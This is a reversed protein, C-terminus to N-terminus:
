ANILLIVNTKCGVQISNTRIPNLDLWSKTTETESILNWETNEEFIWIIFGIMEWLNQNLNVQEYQVFHASEKLNIWRYLYWAIQFGNSFMNWRKELIKPIVNIRFEAFM